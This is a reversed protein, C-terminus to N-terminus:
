EYALELEKLELELLDNLQAANLQDLDLTEEASFLPTPSPEDHIQVRQMIYETLQKLTPYRYLDMPAVVDPFHKGLEETYDIGTISDLGYHQFPTERDIEAMELGLVSAFLNLALAAIEEPNLSSVVATQAHAAYEAVFYSFFDLQKATPNVQLFKKWQIKCVTIEACDLRLLTHFLAIGEKISLSAM